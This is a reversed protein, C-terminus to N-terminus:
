KGNQGEKEMLEVIYDVLTEITLFPSRKRSMAKEDALTLTINFEDEVNEEIAVILNVLGLSDLSSGKGFLPSDGSKEIQKEESLIENLEDVALFVAQIIQEKNKM